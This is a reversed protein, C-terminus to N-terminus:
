TQRWEFRSRARPTEWRRRRRATSARTRRQPERWCHTPMYPGPREPMQRSIARARDVDAAHSAYVRKGQGMRDLIPLLQAMLTAATKEARVVEIEREECAQAALHQARMLLQRTVAEADEGEALVATLSAEADCSSYDGLNRKEHALVSIETIQM